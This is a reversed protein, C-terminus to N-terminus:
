YYITKPQTAATDYSAATSASISIGSMSFSISISGTKTTRHTYRAVVNVPNTGSEKQCEVSTELTVYHPQFEIDGGESGCQYEYAIGVNPNSDAYSSANVKYVEGDATKWYAVSSSSNEVIAFKTSGWELSIYDKGYIFPDTIWVAVAQLKYKCQSSVSNNTIILDMQLQSSSITGYPIIDSEEYSCYQEEQFEFTSAEIGVVVGDVDLTPIETLLRILEEREEQSLSTSVQVEKTGVMITEYAENVSNGTDDALSINFQGLAILLAVSLIICVTKRIKSMNGGKWQDDPLVKGAFILLEM